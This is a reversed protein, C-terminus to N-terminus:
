APQITADRWFIARALHGIYANQTADAIFETRHKLSSSVAAIIVINEADM